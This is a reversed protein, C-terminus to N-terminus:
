SPFLGGYKSVTLRLFGNTIKVPKENEDFIECFNIQSVKCSFM